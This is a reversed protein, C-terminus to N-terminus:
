VMGNHHGQGIDRSSIFNRLKGSLETLGTQHGTDRGILYVLIYMYHLIYLICKTNYMICYLISNINVNNVTMVPM